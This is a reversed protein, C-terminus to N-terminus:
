LGTAHMGLGDSIAPLGRANKLELQMQRQRYRFRAAISKTDSCHPCSVGEEYLHSQMDEQSIPMRCAFCQKYQGPQLDHDVSVRYDFVFCEGEWLSESKPVSSLYNLIGGKLHYVQQFGRDLMFSSAKECRIGGTCFMAVQKKHRAPDLKDVYAVFDKFTDLGPDVARAFSGIKTEYVNRTDIVLVDPDSILANWQEPPCYTGVVKCPDVPVGLSILEAKERVLTTRRSFPNHDSLNEKVDMDAMGEQSRIFNLVEDVAARSGAVTGNVGEPSVSCIGAVDRADALSKLAPRVESFNPFSAFKYFSAVVVSNSKGTSKPPFHSESACAQGAQLSAALCATRKQNLEGITYIGNCPSRPYVVGPRRQCSFAPLEANKGNVFGSSRCKVSKARSVFSRAFPSCHLVANFFCAKKIVAAM